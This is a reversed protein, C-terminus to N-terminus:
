GKRILFRGDNDENIALYVSMALNERDNANDLDLEEKIVATEIDTVLSELCDTCVNNLDDMVGPYLGLFRNELWSRRSLKRM